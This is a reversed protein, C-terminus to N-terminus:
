TTMASSESDDKIVVEKSHNKYVLKLLPLRVLLRSSPLPFSRNRNIDLVIADPSLSGRIPLRTSAMVTDATICAYLLCATCTKGGCYCAALLSFFNKVDYPRLAAHPLNQDPPQRDHPPNNNDPHHTKIHFSYTM